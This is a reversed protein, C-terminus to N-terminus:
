SDLGNSLPRTAVALLSSGFPIRVPRLLHHELRSGNILMKNIWPAPIRPPGLNTGSLTEYLRILIRVPFIWHFFYRMQCIDLGTQDTVARLSTRTFRTQHHNLDDHYTWLLRYAPVTILLTGGPELLEEARRLSQVPDDIHELVDLMLILNYRKGPDFHDEFAARHIRWKSDTDSGPYPGGREVGEVEGLHSLTEFFLGEGCGVDLITGWRGGPQLRELETLIVTERSRWWWHQAFLQPYLQSYDPDM